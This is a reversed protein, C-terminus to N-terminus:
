KQKEIKPKNIVRLKLENEKLLKRLQSIKEEVTSYVSDNIDIAKVSLRTLSLDGSSKQWTLKPIVGKTKIRSPTVVNLMDKTLQEKDGRKALQPSFQGLCCMFGQENLLFTPGKGLSNKGITPFSGGCRWKSYDLILTKM